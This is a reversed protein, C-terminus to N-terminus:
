TTLVVLLFVPRGHVWFDQPDVNAAYANSIGIEGCGLNAVNSTASDTKVWAELTYPSGGSLAKSDPLQVTLYNNGLGCATNRAGNSTVSFSGSADASAPPLVKPVSIGFVPVLLSGILAAVAFRSSRSRSFLEKAEFHKFLPNPM